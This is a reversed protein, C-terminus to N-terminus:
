IEGIKRNIIDIAEKRGNNREIRRSPMDEPKTNSDYKGFTSEINGTIEARVDKLAEEIYYKMRERESHLIFGDIIFNKDYHTCNTEYIDHSETFLQTIDRITAIAENKLIKSKATEFWIADVINDIMKLWEKDREKVAVAKEEDTLFDLDDHDKDYWRSEDFEETPIIGNETVEVIYTKGLEFNM